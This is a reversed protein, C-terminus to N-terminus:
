WRDSRTRLEWKGGRLEYIGVTGYRQEGKDDWRMTNTVPAFAEIKRLAELIKKRDASQAAQIATKLVYMSDYSYHAGYAVPGNFRASFKAQFAEGAPFEEANLVPSTAVIRTVLGAAKTMETTKITDGGILVVNTYSLKDLAQLLALVQFDNLTSVVVNIGDAKIQAALGDFAVTEGDFSQRLLVEKNLAKLRAAAGDALGKGYTTGDDVMAYRTSGPLGAAYAGMARAQLNDNAVMRLTTPFGLETFTPNTSIAIQAVSAAAYVPAAEISVGSNLNGIVAVVGTEVLQQAVAKGTAADSKDDVAVIELKVPKGAVKFGAQNIEEVALTVGNLMDQGLSAIPGSLPQAVGIKIVDPASPACASLGALALVSAAATRSFSRRNLCISMKLRPQPPDCLTSDAESQQRQVERRM